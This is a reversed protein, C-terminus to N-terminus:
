WSREPVSAVGVGGRGACRGQPGHVSGSRREGVVDADATGPHVVQLVDVDVDGEVPQHADGPHGTRALGGEGEADEVRLTGAAVDLCQRGVGAAPHRLRGAGVHVRDLVDGGGEGQPLPGTDRTDPRGEAGGGFQEVDQTQHERPQTGVAARVTVAHGRRQGDGRLSGQETRLAPGLHVCGARLREGEVGGAGAWPAATGARDPGDIVGGQDGVRRLGEVVSGHHGPVHEPEVDLGGDGAFEPYAGTHRPLVQRLGFPLDHQVAGLLLLVDGHGRHLTDVIEVEREAVRPQGDQLLQLPGPRVLGPLSEGAHVPEQRRPGTRVTVPRAQRRRGTGGPDGRRVPGPVQRLDRRHWQVVDQPPRVTHRVGQRRLHTRHGSPQDVRQLGHRAPEGLEAEVVEGQVPRPRGQRGPFALADLEGARYAVAGGPHEVDEILRRDSQVRRIDLPQEPHHHVQEGVPIGHDEDIM